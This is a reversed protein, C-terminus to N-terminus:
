WRWPDLTSISWELYAGASIQYTRTAKKPIGEPLVKIRLNRWMTRDLEGATTEVAHSEAPDLHLIRPTTTTPLPIQHGSPLTLTKGAGTWRIRPWVTADGTNTVTVTGTESRPKGVYIGSDSEVPVRFPNIGTETTLDTDPAPIGDGSLRLHAIWRSQGTSIHLQGYEERHWDARWLRYTEALTKGKLPFLIGTLAGSMPLISHGTVVQGPFGDSQNAEIDSRGILGEVGGAKLAFGSENDGTLDWVRGTPSVYEIDM